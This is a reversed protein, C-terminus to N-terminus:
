LIPAATGLSGWSRGLLCRPFHVAWRPQACFPLHEAAVGPFEIASNNELVKRAEPECNKLINLRKSLAQKKEEKKGGM